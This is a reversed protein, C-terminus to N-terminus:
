FFSEAMFLFCAHNSFSGRFPDNAIRYLSFHKNQFCLACSDIMRIFDESFQQIPRERHLVPRLFQVWTYLFYRFVQPTESTKHRQLRQHTADIEISYSRVLLSQVRNKPNDIKCPIIRFTWRSKAHSIIFYLRRAFPQGVKVRNAMIFSRLSTDMDDYTHGRTHRLISECRNRFCPRWLM